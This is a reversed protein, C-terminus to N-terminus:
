NEKNDIRFNYNKLILELRTIIYEIDIKRDVKEKQLIAQKLKLELLLIEIDKRM